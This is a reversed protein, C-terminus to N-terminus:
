RRHDSRPARDARPRGGRAATAGGVAGNGAAAGVEYRAGTSGAAPGGVTRAFWGIGFGGISAGAAAQAALVPLSPTCERARVLLAGSQVAPLPVRYSGRSVPRPRQLEVGDPRYRARAHPMATAAARRGAPE